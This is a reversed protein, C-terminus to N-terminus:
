TQRSKIFSGFIKVRLFLFPLAIKVSGQDGSFAVLAGMSCQVDPLAGPM